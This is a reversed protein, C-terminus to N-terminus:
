RFPEVVGNSRELLEEEHDEIFTRALHWLCEERSLREDEMLVRVASIAADIVQRQDKTPAFRYADREELHQNPYVKSVERVFENQSLEKACAIIEPNRAVDSSCKGLTEINCRPMERLDAESVVSRLAKIARLAAYATSHQTPLASLVWAGFSEHPPETADFLGRQEVECCLLGLEVFTEKSESEITRARTDLIDAAEERSCDERMEVLNRATIRL